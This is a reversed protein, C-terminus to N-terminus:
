DRLLYFQRVEIAPLLSFVVITHQQSFLNGDAKSPKEKRSRTESHWRWNTVQEESSFKCCFFFFDQQLLQTENTVKAYFMVFHLEQVKFSIHYFVLVCSIQFRRLLGLLDSSYIAYYNCQTFYMLLWKKETYHSSLPGRYSETKTILQTWAYLFHTM